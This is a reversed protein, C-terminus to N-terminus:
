EYNTIVFSFLLLSFIHKFFKSSSRVETIIMQDSTFFNPFFLPVSTGVIALFLGLIGGIIVLSKLLMRAQEFDYGNNLISHMFFYSVSKAVFSTYLTDKRFPYTFINFESAILVVM